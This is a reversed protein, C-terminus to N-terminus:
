NGGGAKKADEEEAVKPYTERARKGAPTDGFKRLLNRVKAEAKKPEKKELEVLELWLKEAELERKYAAVADKTAKDKELALIEKALEKELPTGVLSAQLDVLIKYGLAVNGEGIRKRAAARLKEIEEGAFEQQDLAHVSHKTKSTIALLKSWTTYAAAWQSKEIEQDGRKKLALVEVLQEETLGEGAKAQAERLTRLVEEMNPAQGTQWVQVVSRDPRMLIVAPTKLEGEVNHEKYAQDFLKQHAMCTESRYWSCVQVKTKEGAREIEIPSTAHSGTAGIALVISPALASLEASSFLGDRFARIDDHPAAPDEHFAFFLAPVNRDSARQLAQDYDGFFPVLPKPQAQPPKKGQVLAPRAVAPQFPAPYLALIGASLAVMSTKLLLM